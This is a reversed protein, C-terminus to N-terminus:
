SSKAKQELISFAVADGLSRPYLGPDRYEHARPVYVGSCVRLGFDILGALHRNCPESQTACRWFQAVQDLEPVLMKQPASAVMPPMSHTDNSLSTEQDDDFQAQRLRHTPDVTKMMYTIGDFTKEVGANVAKGIDELEDAPTRRPPSSQKGASAASKLALCLGAKFYALSFNPFRRVLDIACRYGAEWSEREMSVELAEFLKITYTMEIDVLRQGHLNVVRKLLHMLEIRDVIGTWSVFMYRGENRLDSNTEGDIGEDSHVLVDSGDLALELLPPPSWMMERGVAEEFNMPLDSQFLDFSGEPLGLSLQPVVVQGDNGKKARRGRSGGHIKNLDARLALTADPADVLWRGARPVADQTREGLAAQSRSGSRNARQPSGGSTSPRGAMEVQRSM